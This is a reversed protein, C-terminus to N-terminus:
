GRAYVAAQWILGQRHQKLRLGHDRVLRDVQRAPHVYGRYQSGRMRKFANLLRIGLRTWWTDRPYVLGYLRGARAASQSVLGEVDDYCCVVRDLTVVDAPPILGAMKVFDGYLFRVRGELGRRRAEEKAAELYAQSADVDLAKEVGAALLLHQLAGVGGGVDLLTLGRVGEAQLAEALWRTTRNPGTRRYAALERAVAEANFVEEIGECQCCNM